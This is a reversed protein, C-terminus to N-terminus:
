CTRATSITDLNVVRVMQSWTFCVLLILYHHPSFFIAVRVGEGM